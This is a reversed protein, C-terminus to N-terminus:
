TRSPLRRKFQQIQLTISWKFHEMTLNLSLKSFAESFLRSDIHHHCIDLLVSTHKSHPLKVMTFLKYKWFIMKDFCKSLNQDTEWYHHYINQQMNQNLTCNSNLTVFRVTVDCHNSCRNDLRFLWTVHGWCTCMYGHQLWPLKPVIKLM